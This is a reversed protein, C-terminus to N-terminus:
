FIAQEISSNALNNKLMGHLSEYLTGNPAYELVMMRTFPEEDECFGLLNIFNKHNIRSLTDIQENMFSIYFKWASVCYVICFFHEDLPGFRQYGKEQFLERFARVM